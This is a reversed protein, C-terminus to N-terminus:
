PTMQQGLAASYRISARLYDARSTIFLRYTERYNRQADLADLLPRGGAEYAANISDRVQRAIELQEQAVARANAASTVLDQTAKVVEGRLAVRRAQLQYGVQAAVSAAKARNGQNRDFFPLSVTLNTLWSDADPYGIAKNQYQRTYGWSPIVTPFAKRYESEVVADAQAIKWRAAELDPRNQDAVVVAEDIAMPEILNSSELTGIVDFAPDNEDAGLLVRLRAFAAVLNNEADRLSQESRLRDLRIRNLDVKARGGNDVAMSTLAEIKQFNEVDQRAVDRLAKAELVGYYNVAAELVRVRVLDHYESQSVRVGLDTANMQAARKGFLFWDIPYSLIADFQPPGGQRSPTFKHTLPMLQLDTFFQPNPILSATTLDANSQNISELGARIVPDAIMCFNITQDLNIGTAGEPSQIEVSSDVPAGQPLTPSAPAAPLQEKPEGAEAAPVKIGDKEIVATGQGSDEKPVADNQSFAVQEIVPKTAIGNKTSISVRATSDDTSTPQYSAQRVTAVPAATALTGRPVVLKKVATKDSVTAMGPSAADAASFAQREYKSDFTACGALGALGWSLLCTWAKAQRSRRRALSRERLQTRLIVELNLSHQSM